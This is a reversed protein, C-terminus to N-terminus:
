GLLRLRVLLCPKRSRMAEADPRATRALRRLCPRLFSVTLSSFTPLFYARQLSVDLFPETLPGKENPHPEPNWTGPELNRTGPEPVSCM